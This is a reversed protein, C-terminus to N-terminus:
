ISFAEKVESVNGTLSRAPIREHADQNRTIYSYEGENHVMGAHRLPNM